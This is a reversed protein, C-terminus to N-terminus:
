PFCRPVSTTWTGRTVTVTPHVPKVTSLARKWAMTFSSSKSFLFLNSWQFVTTPIYPKLNKYILLNILLLYFVSSIINLKLSRTIGSKRLSQNILQNIWSVWQSTSKSVRQSASKSVQQSASKSVQQSVSLSVWQSVPESAWQGV